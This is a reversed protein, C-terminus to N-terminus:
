KTIAEELREEFHFRRAHQVPSKGNFRLLWKFEENREKSSNKSKQYREIFEVM